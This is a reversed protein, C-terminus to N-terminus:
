APVGCELTRESHEFGSAAGVVLLHTLEVDRGFAHRQTLLEAGSLAQESRRDHVRGGTDARELAARDLPQADRPRAAACRAFVNSSGIQAGADLQVGPGADTAV